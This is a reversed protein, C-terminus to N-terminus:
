APRASAFLGEQRLAVVRVPIGPEPAEVMRGHGIAM